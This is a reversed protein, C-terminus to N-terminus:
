FWPITAKKSLGFNDFEGLIPIDTITGMKFYRRYWQGNSLSKMDLYPLNTLQKKFMMSKYKRVDDETISGRKILRKLKSKGMNSQWRSVTRYKIVSVPIFDIETVDCFENLDGLWCYNNLKLLDTKNSHLRITNGLTLKYKPFSVGVNLPKNEILAKHLNFYVKSLLFNQSFESNPKIQIDQYNKMIDIM